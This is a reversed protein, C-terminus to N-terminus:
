GRSTANIEIKGLSSHAALFEPVFAARHPWDSSDM